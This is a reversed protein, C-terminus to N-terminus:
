HAAPLARGQGCPFLLPLIDQVKKLGLYAQPGFRESLEQLDEATSGHPMLQNAYMPWAGIMGLAAAAERM